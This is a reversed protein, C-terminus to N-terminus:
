GEGEGGGFEFGRVWRWWGREFRWLGFGVAWGEDVEFAGQVEEFAREVIEADDVLNMVTYHPKARPAADQASLFGERKWPRQLSTRLHEFDKGGRDQPVIIAMGRKRKEAHTAALPFRLTQKAIDQIVPLISSNLKSGPLAHFLTLHARLKNLHKPFYKNRLATMRNHHDQDTQLTLVYVTEEEGGTKPQQSSSPSRRRGDAGHHPRPVSEKSQNAPTSLEGNGPQEQGSTSSSKVAASYSM